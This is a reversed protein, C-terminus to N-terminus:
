CTEREPLLHHLCMEKIGAKVEEEEEGGGRRRQRNVGATEGGKETRETGREKRKHKTRTDRGGTKGGRAAEVCPRQKEGETESVTHLNMTIM